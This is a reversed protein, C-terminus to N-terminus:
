RRAEEGLEVHDGGRDVGARGHSATMAMTVATMAANRYRRIMTDIYMDTSSAPSGRRMGTGNAAPEGQGRARGDGEPDPEERARQRLACSAM